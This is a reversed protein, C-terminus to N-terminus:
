KKFSNFASIRAYRQSALNQKLLEYEGLTIEKNNYMTEYRAMESKYYARGTQCGCLFFCLSIIILIKM